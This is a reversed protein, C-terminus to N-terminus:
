TASPLTRATFSAIAICETAPLTTITV